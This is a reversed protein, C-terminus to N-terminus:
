ALLTSDTKPGASIEWKMQIAKDDDDDDGDNSSNPLTLWSQHTLCTFYM